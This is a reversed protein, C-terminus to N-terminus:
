SGGGENDTKGRKRGGPDWDNPLSERVKKRAHYLRSMVTGVPIGMVAAIEGYSLGEYCYLTFVMRHADGLQEVAASVAQAVEEQELEAEPASTGSRGTRLDRKEGVSDEFVSQEKRVKRRRIRDICQNTTIRYAWTLFRGSTDFGDLAKHIRVFVEQTTDLADERNRLMRMSVAFIRERHLRYLGEFGAPDGALHLRILRRDEDDQEANVAAGKGQQGSNEPRTQEPVPSSPLSESENM